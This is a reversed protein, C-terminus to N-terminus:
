GDKASENKLAKQQVTWERWLHLFHGGLLILAMNFELWLLFLVTGSLSGYILSYESLRVVLSTFAYTVILSILALIFSIILTPLPRVLAPLLINYIIFVLVTLGVASYFHSLWLNFHLFESPLLDFPIYEIIHTALLVCLLLASLAPGAIWPLVKRWRSFKGQTSEFPLILNKHLRDFFLGTTWFIFIISKLRIAATKSFLQEIQAMIEDKYLPVIKDLNEKLFELAPKTDGLITSAVSIALFVLPISALLAYFALSASQNIGQQKFFNKLSRCALEFIVSKGLTKQM